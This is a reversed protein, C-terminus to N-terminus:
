SDPFAAAPPTFDETYRAFGKTIRLDDIWGNLYAGNYAGPRGISIPETSDNMAAASSSTGEEVGDVFIRFTNESRTFALHYWQGVSLATTAVAVVLSSGAAMLGAPRSSDNLALFFSGSAVTFISNIQGIVYAGEAGAASNLRVWAEITFDGSGFSFDASDALGVYDGSGDFNGSAGGFKSQATDLQANGFAALTKPSPSNDVFSTSGDEGDFHCLLSVNAFEPDGGGGGGGSIQRAGAVVGPIM